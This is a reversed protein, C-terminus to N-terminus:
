VRAELEQIVEEIGEKKGEAIGDNRGKNYIQAKEDEANKEEEVYNKDKKM